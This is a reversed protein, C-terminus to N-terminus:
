KNRHTKDNQQQETEPKRFKRVNENKIAALHAHIIHSCLVYAQHAQLTNKKPKNKKRHHFNLSIRVSGHTHTLTLTHQARSFSM